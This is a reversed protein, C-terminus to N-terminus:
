RVQASLSQSFTHFCGDLVWEFNRATRSALRHVLQYGADM